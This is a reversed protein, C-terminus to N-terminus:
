EPSSAPRGRRRSQTPLRRDPVPPALKETPGATRPARIRPFRLPRLWPVPSPAGGVYLVLLWAYGAVAIGGMWGAYLSTLAILLTSMVILTSSRALRYRSARRAVLTELWPESRRARGAPWLRGYGPVDVVFPGRRARRAEVVVKENLTAVWPEWMLRQYWTRESDVICLWPIGVLGGKGYSYVLEARYRRAPGRAARWWRVTRHLFLLPAIVMGIILLTIGAVWSQTEDIGTWIEPFVLDASAASVRVAVVSGVPYDAANGVDFTHRRSSGDSDGWEVTIYDQGKRVNRSIVVTANARQTAAAYAAEYASIRHQLSLVTWVSLGLVAVLSAVVWRLSTNPYGKPAADTV